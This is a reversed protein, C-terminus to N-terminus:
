SLLPQAPCCDPALACLAGLRVADPSGLGALAAALAPGDGRMGGDPPPPSFLAGLTSLAPPGQAPSPPASRHAAPLPSSEGSDDDDDDDYYAGGGGSNDGADGGAGREGAGESSDDDVGLPAALIERAHVPVGDLTELAPAADLVAGRYGRLAAVPNGALVLVRLNPLSGLASLTSARVILNDRLDLLRLPELAAIGALLAEDDIENGAGHLHTLAPLADLGHLTQARACFLVETLSRGSAIQPKLPSPRVELLNDSM